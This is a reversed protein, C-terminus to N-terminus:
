KHDALKIYESKNNWMCHTRMCIIKEWKYWHQIKPPPACFSCPLKWLPPSAFSFSVITCFYLPGLLNLAQYLVHLFYLFVLFVMVGMTSVLFSLYQTNTLINWQSTVPVAFSIRVLEPFITSSDCCPNLFPSLDQFGAQSHRMIYQKLQSM